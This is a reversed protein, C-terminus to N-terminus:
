SSTTESGILSPLGRKLCYEPIEIMPPREFEGIEEVALKYAGAEYRILKMTRNVDKLIERGYRKELKAFVTQIIAFAMKSLNTLDQNRHIREVLDVQAISALKFREYAEILLSTEVGYGSTFVLQELFERRGGYEGSLPQIIGSLGPYM